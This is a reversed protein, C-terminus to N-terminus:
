SGSYMITETPWGRYGALCFFFAERSGRSMVGIVMVHALQMKVVQIGNKLRDNCPVAQRRNYVHNTLNFEQLIAQAEDLYEGLEALTHADSGVTFITIGSEAALAVIKRSPHFEELGRRRSSTNIELGMGKQAMEKFIPEILGEHLLKIEPGFYRSGYRVYLDVHALCDFLGTAVMEQLTAFYDRRVQDLTRPQFYWPSEKMSSIAIHDLCHIAGLVFDFPYNNVIKEIDEECGSCYGVEVGAKIQLSSGRFLEQARLIDHFYSDLWARDFVSVKKGNVMVFNDKERRVPDLEVHTTFCIDTLGLELARYCYEEIHVASADISYNPHIHYDTKVSKM